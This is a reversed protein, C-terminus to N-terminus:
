SSYFHFEFQTQKFLYFIIDVYSWTVEEQNLLHKSKSKKYNKQNRESQKLEEILLRETTESYVPTQEMNEFIASSELPIVYRSTIQQLLHTKIKEM